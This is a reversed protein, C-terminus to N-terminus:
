CTESIDNCRCFLHVTVSLYILFCFSEDELVKTKPFYRKHLKLELSGYFIHRPINGTKTIFDRSVITVLFKICVADFFFSPSCPTFTDLIWEPDVSVKLSPSSHERTNVNSYFDRVHHAETRSKSTCLCSSCRTTSSERSKTLPMLTSTHMENSKRHLIHSYVDCLMGKNYECTKCLLSFFRVVPIVSPIVSWFSLSVLSERSSFLTTNATKGRWHDCSECVRFVCVQALLTTPSSVNWSVCPM